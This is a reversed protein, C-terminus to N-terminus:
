AIDNWLDEITLCWMLFIHMYGLILIHGLNLIMFIHIIPRKGEPVMVSVARIIGSGM